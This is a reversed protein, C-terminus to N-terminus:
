QANDGPCGCVKAKRHGHRLVGLERVLETADPPGLGRCAGGTEVRDPRHKGGDSRVETPSRRLGPLEHDRHFCKDLDRLRLTQCVPTVPRYRRQIGSQTSDKSHLRPEAVAAGSEFVLQRGLKCVSRMPTNHLLLSNHIVDGQQRM